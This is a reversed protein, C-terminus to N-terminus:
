GDLDERCNRGNFNRRKWRCLEKAICFKSSVTGDINSNSEAGCDDGSLFGVSLFPNWKNTHRLIGNQLSFLRAGHFARCFALINDTNCPAIWACFCSIADRGVTADRYTQCIWPSHRRTYSKCYSINSISGSPACPVAYLSVPIRTYCICYSSWMSISDSAVCISEHWGNTSAM